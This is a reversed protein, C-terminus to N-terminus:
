GTGVKRLEEFAHKTEVDFGGAFQHVRFAFRVGQLLLNEEQLSENFQLEKTVRRMYSKALTLSGLKMQGILGTDLMWESPIHFERYRKSTDERIREINSVSRELRDQLAQIRRLSQTLLQKPNDNFSSVESELNKLDRYAFAAERLADAKREPWQPFHKLVAREDVLCSLEGDLWKVFAEVDSIDTFYATEVARALSNIFEGQNEVDSKIALVHTSRNEIEGIMNRPNIVPATGIQSTKNEKQPKMLLRYFEVVEPVRRVAKSRALFNSPLPPPPPPAPTTQVKYDHVKHSPTSTTPKSPPPQARAPKGKEAASKHFDNAPKLIEVAISKVAIESPVTTAKQQFRDANASDMSNQLKKWLISKRENDHAKLASVQAKLRGVEQKLEENEKELSNNWVLAAELEKRLFSIRSDDDDIPMRKGTRSGGFLLCPSLHSAFQIEQNERKHM